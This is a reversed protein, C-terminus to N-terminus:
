SGTAAQGQHHARRREPLRWWPTNPYEHHEYHYGFHYCTLFSLWVPYANSRAHHRNTYGGAPERHPLYTGFAFLQVTSLLAPAVWFALLKAPPIGLGYQLANFLVAMGLIQWVTLYHLMFRAYWGLFGTRIGDHYDPDHHRGPHRHHLFHQARVKRYPFLAYVFLIIRGIWANVTRRGPWLSGHIADHATIFMGTYLFTMWLTGLPWFLVPLTDSWPGLLLSLVAAWNAIVTAAILPGPGVRRRDSMQVEESRRYLPAV